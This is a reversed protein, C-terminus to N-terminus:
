TRLRVLLPRRWRGLRCRRLARAAPDRPRLRRPASCLPRLGECRPARGRFRRPGSPRAGSLPLTTTRGGRRARRARRAPSPDTIPSRRGRRASTPPSKVSPQRSFVRSRRGSPFRRSRIRLGRRARPRVGAASSPRSVRASRGPRTFSSPRKGRARVRRRIRPLRVTPRRKLVIPGRRRAYASRFTPNMGRIQNARIHGNPLVRNRWQPPSRRFSSLAFHM